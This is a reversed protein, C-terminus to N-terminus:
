SQEPNTKRKEVAQKLAAYHEIVFLLEDRSLSAAQAACPDMTNYRGTSRVRESAAFHQLQMATFNM